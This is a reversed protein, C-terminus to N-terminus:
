REEEAERFLDFHIKLVCESSKSIYHHNTPSLEWHLAEEESDIFPLEACGPGVTVLEKVLSRARIEGGHCHGDRRWALSPM